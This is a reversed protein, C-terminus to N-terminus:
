YDEMCDVKSVAEWYNDLNDREVALLANKVLIRNVESSMIMAQWEKDTQRRQPACVKKIDKMVAQRLKAEKAPDPQDQAHVFVAFLLCLILCFLHAVKM